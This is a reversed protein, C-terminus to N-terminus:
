VVAPGAQDLVSIQAPEFELPLNKKGV